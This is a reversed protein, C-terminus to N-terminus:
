HDTIPFSGDADDPPPTLGGHNQGSEGEREFAWPIVIMGTSDIPFLRCGKSVKRPDFDVNSRSQADWYTPIMFITHHYAYELPVGFLSNLNIIDKAGPYKAYYMRIGFGTEDSCGANCLAAEIYGIFRKIKDMSFWICTADSSDTRVHNDWIFKKGDDDCYDDSMKMALSYNIMGPPEGNDFGLCNSDRCFGTPKKTGPYIAIVPKSNNNCAQIIIISLLLANTAILIKKMFCNKTSFHNFLWIYISQFGLDFRHATTAIGPHMM